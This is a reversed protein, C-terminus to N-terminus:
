SGTRAGTEFVLVLVTAGGGVDFRPRLVGEPPGLCARAHGAFSGPLHRTRKWSCCRAAALVEAAAPSDPPTSCYSDTPMFADASNWVFGTSRGSSAVLPLDSTRVTHAM